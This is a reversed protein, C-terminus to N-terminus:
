SLDRAVVGASEEAVRFVLDVAEDITMRRGREVAAEHMRPELAARIGASPDQGDLFHQLSRPPRIGYRECLAAFAGSLVAADEARGFAVSLVVGEQLQLTMGAEERIRRALLLGRVWWGVAGGLDGQMYRVWGLTSLTMAEYSVDGLAEFRVLSAKFVASASEIQGAAVLATGRSWEVRAVGRADGIAEFRSKADAISAAVTVPDGGAFAIHGLNFVADAEAVPDGLGRALALQEEYRRQAAASDAQWYAIGGGAAVAAMRAATPAQAAPMALVTDALSRGEHMHGGMQWYRWLAPLFRLAIDGDNTDISWRLAAHLNAHDIALRDLWRPQDPGPLHPAAAEAMALYALAHRRRLEAEEGAAILRGLAFTQITRLLRYRATSRREVVPAVLSHEALTALGDFLDTQGPGAVGVVTAADGAEFGDEFVALQQLLRQLDPTLLDHSWAIAGDLTRQRDSGPLPLRAALRDRIADIPVRSVRAAALEIGLPLGDLLLCIEEVAARDAGPEWGPQVSRARETFLEVSDRVLPPVPYEQEGSIRLPARSTVIVRSGPSARLV